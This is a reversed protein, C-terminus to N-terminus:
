AGGDARLVKILAALDEEGYGAALARKFIGSINDPFERSMDADRAQSQLRQVVEEWVRIRAGPYLSSLEDAGAHVIEALEGARGGEASVSAFLDAGAGSATCHGIWFM